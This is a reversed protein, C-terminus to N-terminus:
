IVVVDPLVRSPVGRDRDWDWMIPVLWRLEGRTIEGVDLVGVRSPHLVNLDSIIKGVNMDRRVPYVLDEVVRVKFVREGRPDVEDLNYASRIDEGGAGKRRVPYVLDEVVGVKLM